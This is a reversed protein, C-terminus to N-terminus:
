APRDGTRTRAALAARRAADAEVRVAAVRRQAEELDREAQQVRAEVARLARERREADREARRRERERRAAEARANREAAKRSREAERDREQQRAPAPEHGPRSTGAGRRAPSPPAVAALGTLFETGGLAPLRDLVGDQLPARAAADTTAAARLGREVQGLLASGAGHGARAAIERAAEVGAAVADHVAASASRLDTADGRVARAQAHRLRDGAAFAASIVEPRERAVADLLWVPLAPRRLRRVTVAEPSAEAALSRALADRAAVFGAPPLAYLDRVRPDPGRRGASSTARKAM